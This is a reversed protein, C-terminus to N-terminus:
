GEKAFWRTFDIRGVYRAEWRQDPWVGIPVKTLVFGGYVPLFRIAGHPRLGRLARVLADDQHRPLLKGSGSATERWFYIESRGSLNHPVGVYPGTWADGPELGTDDALDIVGNGALVDLFELPGSWEGVIAVRADNSAPVLVQGYEDILFAGGGGGGLFAKGASVASVLAQVGPSDVMPCEGVLGDVGWEVVPWWRGSVM